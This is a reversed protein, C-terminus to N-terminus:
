NLADVPDNVIVVAPFVSPPKLTPTTELVALQDRLSAKVTVFLKANLKPVKLVFLKLTMAAETTDFLEFTRVIFKPLLVTVKVLEFGVCNPVFVFKVKLAPVDVIKNVALPTDIKLPTAPPPNPTVKLLTWNVLVLM